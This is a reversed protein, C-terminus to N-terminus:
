EGDISYSPDTLVVWDEEALLDTQSALWPVLKGDVTSIYIYPLGMKSNEDPTQIKIFMGKGNWGARAVTGGRKLVELAKSFGINKLIGAEEGIEAPTATKDKDSM